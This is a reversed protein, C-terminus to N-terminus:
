SRRQRARGIGRPIAPNPTATSPLPFWSRLIGKFRLFSPDTCNRPNVRQSLESFISASPRMGACRLVKELCEKPSNPKPSDSPWLGQDALWKRPEIDSRNWGLCRAVNPSSSWVWVDLEPDIVVCAARNDWGSRSLNQTVKRETENTQEREYPSGERDFMVLAHSFSGLYVRLFEAARKGVADHAPHRRVLSRVGRVGLVAPRSLLGEVAKQMSIDAVLVILDGSDSNM